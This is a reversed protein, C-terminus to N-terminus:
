INKHFKIGKKGSHKVDYLAGDALKILDVINNADKPYISIGTSLTVSFKFDEIEIQHQVTELDNKIYQLEEKDKLNVEIVTIFEDGGFRAVFYDSKKNKVLIKAIEALVKDGVHHGYTDNITKFEDIDTIAVMFTKRNQVLYNMRQELKRRNPLGTLYDTFSQQELKYRESKLEEVARLNVSIILIFSFMTFMVATISDILDSASFNLFIVQDFQETMVVGIRIMMILSVFITMFMIPSLILLRIKKFQSITQIFMRIMMYIVVLTVIVRRIDIRDVGYSFIVLGIMTLLLVIFLDKFTDEIQLFKHLGVNFLILSLILLGNGVYLPIWSPLQHNFTNMVFAALQFFVALTWYDLGKYLRNVYIHTLFLGFIVTICFISIVTIFIIQEGM